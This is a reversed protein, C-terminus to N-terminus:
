DERILKFFYPKDWGKCDMWGMVTNEDIQAFVDNIAKADYCMAAHMRGRFEITRLRAKAQKTWVLPAILPILLPGIQDRLPLHTVLNIPLLAPNIARRGWLPLVHVLPFVSEADLFEKGHWYSSELLGDMPHDTDIGEGRWRGLMQDATAPALSDFREIAAATSMAENKSHQKSM